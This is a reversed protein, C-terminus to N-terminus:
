VVKRFELDEAITPRSPFCAGEADAHLSLYLLVRIVAEGYGKIRLAWWFPVRVERERFSAASKKPHYVKGGMSIALAIREEGYTGSGRKENWKDRMRGSHRFLRDLQTKDRTVFRVMRLFALNAESASPFKGKEGRLLKQFDAGNKFSGCFSSLKRTRIHKPRKRSRNQSRNRPSGNRTIPTSAVKSNRGTHSKGFTASRLAPLRLGARMVRREMTIELGPDKHSRPITACAIAHLGKKSQSEEVYTGLALLDIAAESLTGDDAICKDLDFGIFGGGLVFGLFANQAEAERLAQEFTMWTSPRTANYPFVPKKVLRNKKWVYRWLIWRRAARMTAPATIGGQLVAINEAIM